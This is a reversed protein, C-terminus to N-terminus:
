SAARMPATDASGRPEQTRDIHPVAPPPEPKPTSAGPAHGVPQNLRPSATPDDTTSAAFAATRQRAVVFAVMVLLAPIASGAAALHIPGGLFRSALCAVFPTAFATAAAASSMRLVGSSSFALWTAFVALPLAGAIGYFALCCAASGSCFALGLGIAAASWLLPRADLSGWLISRPSVALPRAVFLAAIAAVGATVVPGSPAGGRSLALGTVLAAPLFTSWALGRAMTRLAHSRAAFLLGAGAVIAGSALLWPAPRPEHLGLGVLTLGASGLASGAAQTRLRSGDAMATLVNRADSNNRVVRPPVTRAVRATASGTRARRGSPSTPIAYAPRLEIDRM